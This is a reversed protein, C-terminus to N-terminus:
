WDFRLAQEAQAVLNGAAIREQKIKTHTEEWAHYGMLGLIPLLAVAGFVFLRWRLGYRQWLTM